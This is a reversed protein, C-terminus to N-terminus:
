RKSRRRAEAITEALAATEEPRCHALAEAALAEWDADQGRLPICWSAMHVVRTRATYSCVVTEDEAIPEPWADSPPPMPTVALPTPTIEQGGLSSNVFDVGSMVDTRILYRM